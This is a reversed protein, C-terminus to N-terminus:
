KVRTQYKEFFARSKETEPYSVDAPYPYSPMAKFPLPGITMPHATYLDMDKCYGHADFAFSRVCGEPVPPFDDARFALELGDGRGMIVFQDDVETLLPLVDGFRTHVGRMNKFPFSPDISDYDYLRPMRGDPSYERPYGARRLVARSAEVRHLAAPRTSAAAIFLEDIYIEQNMRLRLERWENPQLDPLELTMMKPMGAPYGASPAAARWEGDAGRADVSMGELALGEQAAAYNIHSYPYEVWGYIFLVLREGTKIQVAEESFQLHISAEQELFGLRRRHRKLPQYVRDRAALAPLIDLGEYGAGTFVPTMEASIPYHRKSFVYFQETPLNGDAAFREDPYAETGVPHDVATLGVADLYVAEEMPEMIQFLYEGRAGARDSIKPALQGAELQVRETPDPQAYVGPALFFGLGGVGLFDSIFEYREGNWAFLIPCSSAKRQVEKVRRFQNAPLELESQLVGNPWLIRLYDAGERRGLGFELHPNSAIFAGGIMHRETQRRMGGSRIEVQAGYGSRNAREGELAIHLWRNANGGENQYIILQGADDLTLLDSDGDADMDAAAIPGRLNAAINLGFRESADQFAGAGDNEYLRVGNKEAFAIDLDGDNDADFPVASHAQPPDPFQLREFRGDRNLAMEAGSPYLLLLDVNGDGDFDGAIPAIREGGPKMEALGTQASIDTWRNLRDNRYLRPSSRKPLAILDVDMDGDADGLAFPASNEEELKQEIKQFAGNGNNRYVALTEAGAAILDLDGEHDVDAWAATHIGGAAAIGSEATADVFRMGGENRLLRSEKEGFAFLDADGDDDMDGFVGSMYGKVPMPATEILGAESSICVVGANPLYIDLRGDQNLDILAFGNESTKVPLELRKRKFLVKIKTQVSEEEPLPYIRVVDAYVGMEGYAMARKVGANAADMERFLAMEKVAEDRRKLRVLAQGLSYRASLLYPNIEVARRLAAEAQEYEGRTLLIAGIFYLSDASNPDRKLTENFHRFAADNDGRYRALVALAYPPHPMKPNLADAKLFAAQALDLADAAEPDSAANLQAVGLNMWAYEWEPAREVTKQFAQVADAFRYQEMLGVGRNMWKVAEADQAQAACTWLACVALAAATLIRRM